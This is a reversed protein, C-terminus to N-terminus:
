KLYKQIGIEILAFLLALIVFWKWLENISNDKELAEFLDTISNNKSTANLQKLNYYTLNSETRPYNFSIYKLTENKNKISYVGDESPQGNFTLTVKNLFPQQQPIFEINEKTIKLIEDKPLTIAVDIVENTGLSSYLDEQQLSEVGMKYFTPVILPSNKFNSFNGSLPSTFMYIGKKGTLFSTGNAYSLISPLKSKIEFSQNAKPYQFNTVKKDFVSTYLPHDFNITTIEQNNTTKNSIVIGFNSLVANYNNKQANNNPIVVISGGNQSFTILAQQLVSPIQELENLVILNQSALVSYNLKNISTSEFNFEDETYIRSLYNTDLGIVLVNIKEKKNISFYFQNDYDLGSDNLTIKGLIEKNNPVTFAVSTIKDGNFDTALKAILKENNYVSLPINEVGGYNSLIVKLELNDGMNKDVYLSDISININESSKVKIYHKEIKSISDTKHNSNNTTQFDSILVLNKQTDYTNSFLTNAKLTIENLTLQNSSFPLKLLNSQIEKLTNNRYITNNTFLSLKQNSPAEKLLTQITKELLSVNGKKAQMSFSNDIYIVTEKKLLATKNAFFPQAFAIIIATFLLLRTCLLLLKKISKSKRSSAVVKQLMKVNTFPTKKFRRLQFLHVLIPIILLLLGWLIEPNKFQM